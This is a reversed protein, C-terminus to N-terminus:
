NSRKAVMAFQVFRTDDLYNKFIRFAIRRLLSPRWWDENIGQISVIKLGSGNFLRPASKRTFFRLHTKDRVGYPEYEFDRNKLIHILNDIHRLNPISVVVCGDKALKTSALRLAGWPDPMHELVDNFVIVDFYQDPLAIEESFFGTFVRDLSKAALKATQRNPEVGWVETDSREKIARGFAGLHCGVDLVRRADTPVFSLMELRPADAYPFPVETLNESITINCKGGLEATQQNPCDSLNVATRADDFMAMKIEKGL